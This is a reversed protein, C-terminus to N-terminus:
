ASFLCCISPHFDVSTPHTTLPKEDLPSGNRPVHKKVEVGQRCTWPPSVAQAEGSKRPRSRGVHLSLPQMEGQVQHQSQEEQDQCVQCGKHAGDVFLRQDGPNAEANQFTKVKQRRWFRPNKFFFQYRLKLCISIGM